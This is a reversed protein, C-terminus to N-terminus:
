LDFDYRPSDSSRAPLADDAWGTIPRSDGVIGSEHVHAAFARSIADMLDDYDGYPFDIMQSRTIECGPHRVIFFNGHEAQSSVPKASVVKGLEPSSTVYRGPALERVVYEAFHIGTAGPDRPISWDLGPPDDRHRQKVFDDVEAPGGRIAASDMLYFRKSGTSRRVCATATQDATKAKSGAFDWGRKDIGLPAESPEIIPLWEATFMTGGIQQPWQDFQAAVADSGGLVRMAAELGAVVYEPFRQPDALEGIETRWDTYGITSPRWTELKRAPHEAGKYRMEILLIEYGLAPNNLVIGGIDHLHARQMIGVTASVTVPRPDDPDSELTGHVDRVWFPVRINVEGNSNRVRTPLSKSFWTTAELLAAPSNADKINHPDDWILRDARFGTTGGRVSSARRWGGKDNSFYEKADTNKTIKFRDGWFRQYIESEIIKRCDENAKLTLKPSYSWSMYRLDPRNKPGWEWAPWFVNVLYTKTSGPPVTALLNKITGATVAELHLAIAEQVRGRVFPQGPDVIPWMLEVFDLLSAECREKARVMRTARPDRTLRMLERPWSV